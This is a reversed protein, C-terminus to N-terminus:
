KGFAVTNQRRHLSIKVIRFHYKKKTLLSIINALLQSCAIYSAALRISCFLGFAYANPTTKPPPRIRYANKERYSSFLPEAADLRLPCREDANCKSPNLDARLVFFGVGNTNSKKHHPITSEIQMKARQAFIFTAVLKQVPPLLVGARHQMLTPEFRM